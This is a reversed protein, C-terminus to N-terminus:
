ENGVFESLIKVIRKYRPNDNIEAYSSFDHLDHLMSNMVAQESIVSVDFEDRNLWEDVDTFFDDGRVRLPFFGNTCFDVYKELLELAKDFDGYKCYMDAGQLYATIMTEPNLKSINFLRILEIVRNFATQAADFNDDLLQIYDVLSENLNLLFRHINCQYVEKAQAKNGTLLFAKAILSGENLLQTSISEGLLSFVDDPQELLISCIAQMNLADRALMVDKCDSVVMEFLEKAERIAEYHPEKSLTGFHNILLVSMHYVLPFCSRYDKILERFESMSEDFPKNTFAASQNCCLKRIEDLTLEPSYGLLEDVSINFYAALRPLLTIDPYSQGKEWKSVAAKSVGMYEALGEQTIGKDRRKKTIVNAINLGNM